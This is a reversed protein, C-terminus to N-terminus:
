EVGKRSSFNLRKRNVGLCTTYSSLVQNSAPYTESLDKSLFYMQIVKLFFILSCLSNQFSTLQVLLWRVTEIAQIHRGQSSGYFMKNNFSYKIPQKWSCICRLKIPLLMSYYIVCIRSMNHHQFSHRHCLLKFLHSTKPRFHLKCM